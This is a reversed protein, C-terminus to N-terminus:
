CCSLLLAVAALSRWFVEKIKSFNPPDELNESFWAMKLFSRQQKSNSTKQGARGRKARVAEFEGAADCLGATLADGSPTGRQHREAALVKYAM